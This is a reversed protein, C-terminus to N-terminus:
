YVPHAEVIVSYFSDSLPKRYCAAGGAVRWEGSAMEDDTAIDSLVFGSWIFFGPLIIHNTEVRKM